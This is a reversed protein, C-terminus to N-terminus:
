DVKTSESTTNLTANVEAGNAVLSQLIIWVWISDGSEVTVTSSFTETGSGNPKSFTSASAIGLEESVFSPDPGELLLTNNEETTTGAELFDADISVIVIEANAGSRAPSDAPFTANEAPSTQEYTLMGDFILTEANASTNTYRQMVISNAGNRMIPLSTANASLEAVGPGGTLQARGSAEGYTPDAHSTIAALGGPLGGHSSAETPGISDCVSDGSVCHRFSLYVGTTSQILEANAVSGCLLWVALILLSKNNM